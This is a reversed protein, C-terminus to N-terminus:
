PLDEGSATTELTALEAALNARARHEWRQVATPTRFIAPRGLLSRLVAARGRRWDADNVAGYEQRVATAYQEYGNPDAGLVALDADLLVATAADPPRDDPPEAALHATAEVMAAVREVRPEDWGIEPLTRRAYAASAAENDGRGVEYVSDHFFAAAIVAAVDDVPEAAALDQVHTVTWAVHRVDHYRRHPERHAAVLEGYLGEARVRAAHDPCTALVTSWAAALQAEQNM